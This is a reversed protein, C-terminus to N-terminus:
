VKAKLKLIIDGYPEDQKVDVLGATKLALTEYFMRACLKRRRGELITNLSLEELSSNPYKSLPSHNELYQAVARTRASAIDGTHVGRSDLPSENDQELFSLEDSGRSDRLEPIGSLAIGSDDNRGESNFNPTEIDFCTSSTFHGLDSQPDTTGFRPESVSSPIRMSSPYEAFGQTYLPTPSSFIEVNTQGPDQDASRLREIEVGEDPVHVSAHVPSQPHQNERDVNPVHPISEPACDQQTPVAVALNPNSVILDKNYLTRLSECMGFILPESFIDENKRKKEERFRWLGLASCPLRKRRLVLDSCDNLMSKLVENTLVLTEDFCPERKRKQPQRKPKEPSSSPRLLLQTPSVNLNESTPSSPGEYLPRQQSHLGTSAHLSQPTDIEMELTDKPLSINSKPDVTEQHPRLIPTSLLIDEDHNDRMIEYPPFGEDQNLGANQIDPSLPISVVPVNDMQMPDSERQDSHSSDPIMDDDFTIRVYLETEAPNQDQLTIEELNKLHSDQSGDIRFLDNDIELADLAYTEPLTITNFQAQNDNEPLNINITRFANRLSMNLATCDQYFYEVKKSYIRVVGLLLHGYMRLAIPVEPYIIREVTSPIDTSTYHSKKLKHQLHAACWVTGLPGKRALFTHSYFM